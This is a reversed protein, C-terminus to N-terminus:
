YSHILILLVGVIKYVSSLLCMNESNGTLELSLINHYIIIICNAELM